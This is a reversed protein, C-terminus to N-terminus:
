PKSLQYKLACEKKSLPAIQEALELYELAKARVNELEGYEGILKKAVVIHQAREPLSSYENKIHAIADDLTPRQIVDLKILYKRAVSRAHSFYDSYPDLAWIDLFIAKTSERLGSDYFSEADFCIDGLSEMIERPDDSQALRRIEAKILAVRHDEASNM